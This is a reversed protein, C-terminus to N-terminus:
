RASVTQQVRAAEVLAAFPKLHEPHAAYMMEPHWQVGLVWSKGPYDVAEILGDPATGAVRLPAAVDRLGQHHFSNVQVVTADYTAELLTGPVCAVPHSADEKPINTEMQRHQISDSFQDQVDQILTGGLAVNLTQIGRCICLIPLDRDLAEVVLALELEDRGQHIGYTNPHIDTDGFRSPDIDGGGSLLLADLVGIIESINGAQPPIIVPVGGAAEIATTYTDAITFQHFSGHPLEVDRPSPTVGVIPKRM